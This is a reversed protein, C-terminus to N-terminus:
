PHPRGDFESPHLACCEEGFGSDVLRELAALAEAGDKGSAAVDITCGVSAGLTLLGMISTGCVSQGDKTVIIAAQFCEVCKVFKASARAHLGRKNIIKLQRRLETQSDQGRQVIADMM